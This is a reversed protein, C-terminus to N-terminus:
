QFIADYKQLLSGQLESSISLSRQLSKINIGTYNKTNWIITGCPSKVYM